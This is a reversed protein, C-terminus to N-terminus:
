IIFTHCIRNLPSFTFAKAIEAEIDNCPPEPEVCTMCHPEDYAIRRTDRYPELVHRYKLLIYDKSYPPIILEVPTTM